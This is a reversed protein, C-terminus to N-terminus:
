VAEVRMSDRLKLLQEADIGTYKMIDLSDMKDAIMKRAAAENAQKKGYEEFVEIIVNGMRKLEGIYKELVVKDVVKSALVISLAAVKRKLDDEARMESILATSEKFLETPTYKTSHFLPLYILELENIPKGEAIGKKLRDLIEDADIESCQVIKPTFTFQETKIEKRATPNKVFIVTIFERKYVRSLELHYSGFRLLDDNSLDVEEELHLGRKDQLGFTLDLIESNVEVSVFETSLPETIPAIGHLGLFELTKDKFLVMADKFVSDYNNHIEEM